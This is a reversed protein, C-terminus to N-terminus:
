RTVRPYVLVTKPYNEDFDSKEKDSDLIARLEMQEKKSIEEVRAAAERASWDLASMATWYRRVVTEAEVRQGKNLSISGFVLELYSPLLREVSTTRSIILGRSKGTRPSSLVLTQARAVGCFGLVFCLGVIWQKRM